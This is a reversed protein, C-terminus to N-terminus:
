ATAPTVEGLVDDLQFITPTANEAAVIAPRQVVLQQDGTANTVLAVDGQVRAGNSFAASNNSTTISIQIKNLYANWLDHAKEVEGATEATMADAALQKNRLMSLQSSARLNHITRDFAVVRDVGNAQYEHGKPVFTGNGQIIFKITRGIDSPKLTIRSNIIQMVSKSDLLRAPRTRQPVSSPMNTTSM